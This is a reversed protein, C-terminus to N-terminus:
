LIDKGLYQIRPQSDEGPYGNHPHAQEDEGPVIAPKKTAAGFWGCRMVMRVIVTVMVGMDVEMLVMAM